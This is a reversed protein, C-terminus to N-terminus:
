NHGAIKKYPAMSIDQDRTMLREAAKKFTNRRNTALEVLQCLQDKVDDISVLIPDLDFQEFAGRLKAQTYENVYVGVAPVGTSLAFILQHYRMTVVWESSSTLAKLPSAMPIPEIVILPKDEPWLHAISKALKIDGGKGNPAHHPIFITKLGQKRAIASVVESLALLNEQNADGFYRMSVCCYPYSKKELRKTKQDHMAPLFCADDVAFHVPFNVQTKSYSKDRVGVWKARSLTMEVAKRHEENYPGLTQSVLYVDKNLRNAWKILRLRAELVQPWVSTMNGGGCIFVADCKILLSIIRILSALYSWPRTILVKRLDRNTLHYFPFSKIGYTEYIAEPRACGMLLNEKGVLAGLREIAVEAMAEDGVHYEVGKGSIDSLMLIKPRKM